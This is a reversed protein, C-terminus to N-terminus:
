ENPAMTRALSVVKRADSEFPTTRSRVRMGSARKTRMREKLIGAKRGRQGVGANKRPQRGIFFNKGIWRWLWGKSWRKGAQNNPKQKRTLRQGSVAAQNKRRLQSDLRIRSGKAESILICKGM